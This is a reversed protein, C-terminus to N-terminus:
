LKPAVRLVPDPKPREYPFFCEEGWSPYRLLWEDDRQKWSSMMELIETVREKAATRWDNARDYPLPEPEVGAEREKLLQQYEDSSLVAQLDKLQQELLPMLVRFRVWRHADMDFNDRLMQGATLGKEQVAKVIKADMTLNLGGEDDAMRINVIRERYSPLLSQMNDHYNQATNWIAGLFDALGPLPQNEPHQPANAMPLFVQGDLASVVTKSGQKGTEALHEVHEKAKEKPMSRLNIGFTPCRPLWADFMHIPFNSSIGGDSFWHRELDAKADELIVVGDRKRTKYAAGRIGWLPVASILVPFSLSMRMAVSVPLDASCPLFHYKPLHELSVTDSRHEKAILHTVIADPFFQRMEDEHFIWLNQEFPLDYPQGESLNSTVMNLTIDRGSLM